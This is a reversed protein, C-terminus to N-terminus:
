KRRHAKFAANFAAGGATSVAVFASSRWRVPEGDDEGDEASHGHSACPVKGSYNWFLFNDFRKGSDRICM